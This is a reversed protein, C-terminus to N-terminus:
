IIKNIEERLAQLTTITDKRAQGYCECKCDGDNFRCIHESYDGELDSILSDILTLNTQSCLNIAQERDILNDNGFVDEVSKKITEITKM